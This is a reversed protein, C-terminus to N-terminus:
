RTKREDWESLSIETLWIGAIIGAMRTTLCVEIPPKRRTMDQILAGHYRQFSAFAKRKGLTALTKTGADFQGLGAQTWATVLPVILGNIRRKSAKSAFSQATKYDERGAADTALVINSLSSRPERKQIARALKLAADLHGDAILVTFAEAQLQENEPDGALAFALFEAASTTDGNRRASRGALYRGLATTIKSGETLRVGEGGPLDSLQNAADVASSGLMGLGLVAALGLSLIRLRRAPRAANAYPDSITM